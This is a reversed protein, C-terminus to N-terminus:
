VVLSSSDIWRILEAKPLAGAVRDVLRGDRFLFLSPISRIGFRAALQPEEDTNVKAIKLRGSRERALEGLVPAVARCPGCWPAWFDVLVLGPWKLVEDDFTAAGVSVPEELIELLAKCRGCVPRLSNVILRINNKAGCSRCRTLLERSM